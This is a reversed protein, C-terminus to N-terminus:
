QLYVSVNHCNAPTAFPSSERGKASSEVGARLMTGAANEEVGTSADNDQTGTPHEADSEERQETPSAALKLM